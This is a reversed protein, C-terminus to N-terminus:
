VNRVRLWLDDYEKKLEGDLKYMNHAGQPNIRWNYAIYDLHKFKYGDEKLKFWLFKECRYPKTEIYDLYKEVISRKVVVIHHMLDIFNKRKLIEKNDAHYVGDTNVIREATYLVDPKDQLGELIVDFSDKEVYDDPDVYTVYEANGQSFGKVRGKGIHGIEGDVIYLNINQSELSDLCKGFWESKQTNWDKTKIIHVDIM